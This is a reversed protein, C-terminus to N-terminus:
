DPHDASLIWLNQVLSPPRNRGGTKMFKPHRQFLGKQVGRESQRKSARALITSPTPKTSATRELRELASLLRDQQHKITDLKLSTDRLLNNTERTLDYGWRELRDKAWFRIILLVVVATLAILVGSVFAYNM